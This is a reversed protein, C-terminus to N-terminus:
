ASMSERTESHVASCFCDLVSDAARERINQRLVGRQPPRKEALEVGIFVAENKEEASQYPQVIGGQRMLKERQHTFIGKTIVACLIVGVSPREAKYYVFCEARGLIVQAQTIVAFIDDLFEYGRRNLSRRPKNTILNCLNEPPKEDKRWGSISAAASM